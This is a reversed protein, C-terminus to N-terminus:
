AKIFQLVSETRMRGALARHGTEDPPPLYRRGPPLVRERAEVLELGAVHAARVLGAANDIRVGKVFSNGIVMVARSGPRLVRRTEGVIALLDTAYRWLVRTMRPGLPDLDRAFGGAVYTVESDHGALGREAGISESRTTRLGSLAYGFWVLSLRHGRLYDIANLYPPSTLVLDVSDGAIASMRRADGQRIDCGRAIPLGSLLRLTRRTSLEFQGLVDFQSPSYARHPRSHATDRALSAGRDKTIITRSLAIRLVDAAQGSMPALQLALARLQRQEFEGFWYDIFGRTEADDDIWPVPLDIKADHRAGVLVDALLREVSAADASLVWVRSMLVALPDIDFGVARHGDSAAVRVATGSGVMPDLVLSGRPVSDCAQLAVEPAMRAPFPHIPKLQRM